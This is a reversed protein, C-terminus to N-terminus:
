ICGNSSTSTQWTMSIACNRCEVLVTSYQVRRRKDHTGHGQLEKPSFAVNFKKTLLLLLLLIGLSDASLWADLYYGSTLSGFRRGRSWVDLMRATVSGLWWARWRSVLYAGNEHPKQGRIVKFREAVGPHSFTWDNVGIKVKRRRKTKVDPARVPCVFPCVSSRAFSMIRGISVAARYTAFM